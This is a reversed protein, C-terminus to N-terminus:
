ASRRRRDRRARRIHENIKQLSWRHAGAAHAQRGAEELAALADQAEGADKTRREVKKRVAGIVLTLAKLQVTILKVAKTHDSLAKTLQRLQKPNLSRFIHALKTESKIELLDDIGIM